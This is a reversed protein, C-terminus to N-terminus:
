LSDIYLQVEVLPSSAVLKPSYSIQSLHNVSTTKLPRVENRYLQIKQNLVNVRSERDNFPQQWTNLVAVIDEHHCKLQKRIAHLAIGNLWGIQWNWENYNRHKAGKIGCQCLNEEEELWDWFSNQKIFEGFASYRWRNNLSEDTFCNGTINHDSSDKAKPSSQIPNVSQAYKAFKESYFNWLCREDYRFTKTVGQVWLSSLRM